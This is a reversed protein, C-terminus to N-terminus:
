VGREWVKRGQRSERRFDQSRSRWATIASNRIGEIHALSVVVRLYYGGTISRWFIATEPDNKNRHIEDPDLLTQLLERSLEQMDEHGQLFHAKREGTIVLLDSRITPWHRRIAAPLAGVEMVDDIGLSEFRRVIEDIGEGSTM